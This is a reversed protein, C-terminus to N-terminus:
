VTAEYNLDGKPTIVKITDGQNVVAPANAILAVLVALFGGLSALITTVQIPDFAPFAVVVVVQTFSLFATVVGLWLSTPRGFIM